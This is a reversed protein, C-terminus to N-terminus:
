SVIVRVIVRFKTNIGPIPCCLNVQITTTLFKAMYMGIGDCGNRQQERQKAVKKVSVM